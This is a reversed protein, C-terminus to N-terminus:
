TLDPLGNDNFVYESLITMSGSLLFAAYGPLGKPFNIITEDIKRQFCDSCVKKIGGDLIDVRLCGALFGLLILVGPKVRM